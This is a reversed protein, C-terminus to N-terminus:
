FYRTNVRAWYQWHPAIVTDRVPYERKAFKGEAPLWSLNEEIFMTVKELSYKRVRIRISSDKFVDLGYIFDRGLKQLPDHISNYISEPLRNKASDEIIIYTFATNGDKGTNQLFWALNGSIRSALSDYLPLKEIVKHDFRYAEFAQRIEQKDELCGTFLFGMCVLGALSLIKKM